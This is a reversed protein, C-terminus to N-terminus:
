FLFHKVAGTSALLAIAWKMAQYSMWMKRHQPLLKNSVKGEVDGLLDSIGSVDSDIRDVLLDIKEMTSDQKAEVRAIRESLEANSPAGQQNLNAYSRMSDSDSGSM